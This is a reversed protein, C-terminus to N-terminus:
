WSTRREGLIGTGAMSSDEMGGLRKGVVIEVPCKM